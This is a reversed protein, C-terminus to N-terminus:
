NATLQDFVQQFKMLLPINGLVRLKGSMFATMVNTRGEAVALYINQSTVVSADPHDTTGERVSCQGNAISVVYQGGGDQDFDFQVDATIGEAAEPRFAQPMRTLMLDRITLPM